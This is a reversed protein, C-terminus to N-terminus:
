DPIGPLRARAGPETGGGRGMDDWIHMGHTEESGFSFSLQVRLTAVTWITSM